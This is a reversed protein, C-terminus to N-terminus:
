CSEPTRPGGRRRGGSPRSTRASQGAKPSKRSTVAAQRKLTSDPKAPSIPIVVEFARGRRRAAAGRGRFMRRWHIVPLAWAYPRLALWAGSYGIVAGALCDSAWHVGDTCRSLACGAALIFFTRRLRPYFWALVTAFAFASSAHGSPFSRLNESRLGPQVGIWTQGSSVGTLDGHKAVTAVPRERAIVYKGSNYGISAFLQALLIALIIFQRRRDYQFVIIIAVLIPLIEGFNRLGNMIQRTLGGTGEPLLHYRWGMVTVDFRLLLLFSATLLSWVVARRTWDRRTLHRPLPLVAEGPPPPAMSRGYGAAGNVADGNGSAGETPQENELLLQSM